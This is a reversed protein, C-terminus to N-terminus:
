ETPKQLVYFTHSYKSKEVRQTYLDKWDDPSYLGEVRGYFEDWEEVTTSRNSSIASQENIERLLIDFKSLLPEAQAPSILSHLTDEGCECMVLEGENVWRGTLPWTDPSMFGLFCMGGPKLVRHMENIAIATDVHSLHCLMYFEYVYDFTRDEFPIERADGLRLDVDLAHRDCYEQALHLREESIDIGFCELGYRAFLSIPPRPGGAGCDLIKRGKLEDGAPMRRYLYHLFSYVAPSFVVEDM